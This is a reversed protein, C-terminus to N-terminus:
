SGKREPTAVFGGMRKGIIRLGLLLGGLAAIVALRIDSFPTAFSAFASVVLVFLLPTITLMVRTYALWFAAAQENPCTLRLMNVLPSSLAALVALSLVISITLEALLLYANM